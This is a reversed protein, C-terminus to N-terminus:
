CRSCSALGKEVHVVQFLGSCSSRCFLRFSRDMRSIQSLSISVLLLTIVVYIFYFLRVSCVLEVYVALFSGFNFYVARFFGFCGFCISFSKCLCYVRCM